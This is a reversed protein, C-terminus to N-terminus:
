VTAHEAVLQQQQQQQQKQESKTPSQSAMM